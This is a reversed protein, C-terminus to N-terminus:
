PSDKHRERAELARYRMTADNAAMWAADMIARGEGIGHKGFCGGVVACVVAQHLELEAAALAFPPMTTPLIQM